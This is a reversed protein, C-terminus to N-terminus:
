RQCANTSESNQSVAMSKMEIGSVYIGQMLSDFGHYCAVSYAVCKL